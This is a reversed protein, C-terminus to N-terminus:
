SCRKRTAKGKKRRTRRKKGKPCSKKKCCRKGRGKQTTLCSQLYLAKGLIPLIHKSNKNRLLVEKKAALDDNSRGLYLLGKKCKKFDTKQKPTLPVNGRLINDAGEELAVMSRAGAHKLGRGFMLKKFFPRANRFVDKDIRGM